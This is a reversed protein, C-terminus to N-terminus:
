NRWGSLKGRFKLPSNTADEHISIRLLEHLELNSAKNIGHKTTVAAKYNSKVKMLAAHSYDGNPYCFHRVETKLQNEIERKSHVIENLLTEESLSNDLRFHNNTHSQISFLENNNLAKVEEWNMLSRIERQQDSVTQLAEYIEADSHEKLKEIIQAICERNLPYALEGIAQAFLPHSKLSNSQALLQEAVKNPWFNFTTGIKNQVIFITAPLQHKELLPTAYQYNDRWGDDFTIACAKRPLYAGQELKTMWEDLAVVEFFKKIESLHMDFTEPTVVMGPEESAYRPDTAPLVRHYMLVWLKPTKSASFRHPGSLDCVIDLASKITNKM